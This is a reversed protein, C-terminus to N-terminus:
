LGYKKLIPVYNICDKDENKFYESYSATTNYASSSRLKICSIKILENLHSSSPSDLNPSEKLKTIINQKQSNNMKNWLKYFAEQKPLKELSSDSSKKSSTSRCSGASNVRYLSTSSSVRRALEDKNLRSLNSLWVINSSNNYECNFCKKGSFSIGCTRCKETKLQNNILRHILNNRDIQKYQFSSTKINIPLSLIQNKHLQNSYNILDLNTVRNLTRIQKASRSASRDVLEIQNKVEFEFVKFHKNSKAAIM